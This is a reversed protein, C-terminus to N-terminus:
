SQQLTERLSLHKSDPRLKESSMTQADNHVATRSFVLMSLLRFLLFQRFQKSLPALQSLPLRRRRKQRM